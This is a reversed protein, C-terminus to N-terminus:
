DGEEERKQQRQLDDLSEQVKGQVAMQSSVLAHPEFIFDQDHLLEQVEGQFAFGKFDHGICGVCQAM